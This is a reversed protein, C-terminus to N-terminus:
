KVERHDVERFGNKPTTVPIICRGNEQRPEGLVYGLEWDKGDPTRVQLEDRNHLHIAYRAKM